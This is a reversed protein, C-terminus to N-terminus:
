ASHIGIAIRTVLMRALIRLELAIGAFSLTSERRYAKQAPFVKLNEFIGATGLTYLAQHIGQFNTKRLRGPDDPNM